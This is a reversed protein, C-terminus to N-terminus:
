EEERARRRKAAAPDGPYAEDLGGEEAPRGARVWLFWGFALGGVAPLLFFLPSFTAPPAFLTFNYTLNVAYASPNVFSVMLTLNSVIVYSGTQNTGTYSLFTTTGNLHNHITFEIAPGLGGNASWNFALTDGPSAPLQLGEWVFVHLENASSGATEPQLTISGERGIPPSGPVHAAAPSAALVALAALALAAGKIARPKM